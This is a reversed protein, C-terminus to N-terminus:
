AYSMDVAGRTQLATDVHRHTQTDTYRRTRTDAHRHTQACPSFFPFCSITARRTQLASSPMLILVHVHRCYTSLLPTCINSQLNSETQGHTQTDAHRHTQTDACTPLPCPFCSIPPSSSLARSNPLAHFGRPSTEHTSGHLKQMHYIHVHGRLNSENNM